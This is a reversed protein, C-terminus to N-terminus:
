RLYRDPIFRDPANLEGITTMVVGRNEAIVADQELWEEDVLLVTAFPYDDSREVLEAAYAEADELDGFERFKTFVIFKKKGSRETM